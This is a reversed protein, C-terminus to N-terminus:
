EGGLFLGSCRSDGTKACFLLRFFFTVSPFDRPVLIPICVVGFYIFFIVLPAELVHLLVVALLLFIFVM